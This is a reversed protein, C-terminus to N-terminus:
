STMARLYPVNSKAKDPSVYRHAIVSQGACPGRKIKPAVNVRDNNRATYSRWADDLAKFAADFTQGEHLAIWFLRRLRYYEAEAQDTGSGSKYQREAREGDSRALDLLSSM